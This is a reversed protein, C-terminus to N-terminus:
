PDWPHQCPAADGVVRSQAGALDLAPARGLHVSNVHLHPRPSVPLLLPCAGQRTGLTVGKGGARDHQFSLVEGEQDLVADAEREKAKLLSHCLVRPSVPPRSSLPIPYCLSMPVYACSVPPVRPHSDIFGLSGGSPVDRWTGRTGRHGWSWCAVGQCHSLASGTDSGGVAADGTGWGAGPPRPVDPQAPSGQAPQWRSRPCPSVPPVPPHPPIPIPTLVDPYLCTLSMPVRSKPVCLCPIHSPPIHPPPISSPVHAEYCPSIPHLCSPHQSCSMSICSCLVCLSSTPSSVLVHIRTCPMQSTPCPSM